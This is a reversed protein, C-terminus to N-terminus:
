SFSQRLASFRCQDLAIFVKRLLALFNHKILIKTGLLFCIALRLQRKRVIPGGVNLIEGWMPVVDRRSRGHVSFSFSTCIGMDILCGLNLIQKYTVKTHYDRNGTLNELVYALTSYMYWAGPEVQM